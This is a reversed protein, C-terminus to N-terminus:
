NLIASLFYDCILMSTINIIKPLIIFFLFYFYFKIFIQFNIIIYYKIIENFLQNKKFLNVPGM